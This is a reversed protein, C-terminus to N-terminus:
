LKGIISNGEHAAAGTEQAGPLTSPKTPYHQVDYADPCPLLAM